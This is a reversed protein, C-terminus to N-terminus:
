QRKQYLSNKQGSLNSSYKNIVELWGLFLSRLTRTGLALFFDVQDDMKVFAILIRPSHLM